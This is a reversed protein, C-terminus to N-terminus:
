HEALLNSHAWVVTRPNVQIAPMAEVREIAGPLQDLPVPKSFRFGQLLECGLDVLHSHQDLTEVGEAVVALGLSHAMAVIAGALLATGDGSDIQRVFTRDVKVTQVPFHALYSLSSYGTGFDDIAIRVDMARLAALIGQTRELSNMLVSETIELELASGELGAARLAESVSAELGDATFQRPSLNVAMRMHRHGQRRLRALDSCAQRLVWAGIPVILGTEEALAIFDLPPVLGRQPHQWRLLAELAHVEGSAADVLPQYHLVFEGATLARRLDAQLELQNSVRNSMREDYLSVLNRGRAKADYMAADANRLLIALDSGHVPYLAVGISATVHLRHNEIPLDDVMAALVKHAVEIAQDPHSVDPLLLAFEDGGMRVVTDSTRV